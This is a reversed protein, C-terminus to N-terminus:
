RGKGGVCIMSTISSGVPVVGAAWQRRSSCIVSLPILLFRRDSVDLHANEGVVAPEAGEDVLVRKM